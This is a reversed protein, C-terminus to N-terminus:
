ESRVDTGDRKRRDSAIREAIEHRHVAIEVPAKIGLRVKGRDIDEISIIIDKGIVIKEGLKRNLVLM